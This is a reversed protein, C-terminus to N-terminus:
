TMKIQYSCGYNTLIHMNVVISLCLSLKSSYRFDASTPPQLGAGQINIKQYCDRSVFVLNAWVTLCCCKITKRLCMWQFWDGSRKVKTQSGFLSCISEIISNHIVSVDCSLFVSWPTLICSKSIRSHNKTKNQKPWVFFHIWMKIGLNSSFCKEM